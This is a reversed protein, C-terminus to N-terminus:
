VVGGILGADLAQAATLYWGGYARQRVNELSVASGEVLDAFTEDEVRLGQDIDAVIEEMRSHNDINLVNIEEQETSGTTNMSISM